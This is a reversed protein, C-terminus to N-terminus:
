GSRAPPRIRRRTEHISGTAHLEKRFGRTGGLLERRLRNPRDLLRAEPEARVSCPPFRPERDQAPGFRATRSSPEM